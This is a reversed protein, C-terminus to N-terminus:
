VLSLWQVELHSAKTSNNHGLIGQLKWGTRSQHLNLLKNWYCCIHFLVYILSCIESRTKHQAETWIQCKQNLNSVKSRCLDNEQSTNELYMKHICRDQHYTGEWSRPTSTKFLATDETNFISCRKHVLTQSCCCIDTNRIQSHLETPRMRMHPCLIKIDNRINPKMRM